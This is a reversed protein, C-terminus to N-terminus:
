SATKGGKKLDRCIKSCAPTCKAGKNPCCKKNCKGGEQAYVSPVSGLGLSAVFLMLLIKKM